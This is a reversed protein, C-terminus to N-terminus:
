LRGPPLGRDLGHRHRPGTELTIQKVTVMDPQAARAPLVAASLSVALLALPFLTKM